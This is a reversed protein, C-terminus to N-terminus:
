KKRSPASRTHSRVYTGDKRTYSRVHVTKSKGGGSYSSASSGGSGYWKKNETEGFFVPLPQPRKKFTIKDGEQITEVTCDRLVIYSYNTNITTVMADAIKGGNRSVELLDRAQLGSNFGLDIKYTELCDDVVDTIHGDAINPCENEITAYGITQINVGASINRDFLEVIRANSTNRGPADVEISGLIKGKKVIEFKDGNAVGERTGLNITVHNSTINTIYGKLYKEAGKSILLSAVDTKGAQIAYFLSTYKQFDKANIDAGKSLLLEVTEIQGAYCACHLPTWGKENKTDVAAEHQLLIEIIENKGYLAACHIPTFKGPAMININAGKSILYSVIDKHGAVVAYHLGSLNNSDKSDITDRSKEIYSKVTQIDGKRCAEYFDNLNLAWVNSCYYVILFLITILIHSLKHM